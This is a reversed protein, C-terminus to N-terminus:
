GRDLGKWSTSDPILGFQVVNRANRRQENRWERPTVGVLRRFSKTFHSQDAFGVEVAIDSIPQSHQKLLDKSREIRVQLVWAYPAAGTSAKFGRSFRSLSVGALDALTRLSVDKAFNAELYEKTIRLQRPSLGHASTACCPRHSAEVLAVLLATTLSEGFLRSGSHSDVCIDALLRACKTVRPDYVLLRPELIKSLDFDDELISSVATVDFALKLNGLFRANNYYFWLKQNAPIWNFFGADFRSRPTSQNVNLRPECYGGKQALRIVVITTKSLVETWKEGPGPDNEDYRVAIGNWVRSTPVVKPSRNAPPTSVKLSGNLSM